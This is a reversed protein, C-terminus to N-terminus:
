EYNEAQVRQAPRMKFHWHQLIRVYGSTDKFYNDFSVIFNQFTPLSDCLQLVIDGPIYGCSVKPTPKRGDHFMFDHTFGNSGNRSYVKFGWKYPKNKIYNKLGHRGKFPFIQEDVDNVQAAPAKLCSSRLMNLLPRVKFLRDYSPDMRDTICVNNNSFHLYRKIDEFRDRTIVDAIIPIRCETRWYLRYQPCPFLGMRLFVCLLKEIESVTVTLPHNKQIGYLNSQEVIHNVM